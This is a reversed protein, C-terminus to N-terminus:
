QGMSQKAAELSRKEEASLLFASKGQHIPKGYCRSEERGFISTVIVGNQHRDLLALSFSLDSGTEQFANYRVVGVGALCLQLKQELEIVRSDIQEQKKLCDTILKGHHNLLEDLSLNDCDLMLKRYRLKLAKIKVALAIGLVILVLCAMALAVVVISLHAAVWSEVQSWFILRSRGM